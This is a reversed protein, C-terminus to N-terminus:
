RHFLVYGTAAGIAILVAAVEASGPSANKISQQVDPELGVVWGLVVIMALVWLPGSSAFWAESQSVFFIDGHDNLPSTRGLEPVPHRPRVNSLLLFLIFSSLFGTICLWLAFRAMGSANKM